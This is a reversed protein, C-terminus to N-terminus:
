HRCHRMSEVSAAAAAPGPASYHQTIKTWHSAEESLYLGCQVASHKSIIFM